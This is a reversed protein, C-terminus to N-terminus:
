KHLTLTFIATANKPIFHVYTIAFDMLLILSARPFPAIKHVCYIKLIVMTTRLCRINQQEDVNKKPKAIDVVRQSCARM